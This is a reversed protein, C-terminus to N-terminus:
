CWDIKNELLENIKSFPKSGSFSPFSKYPRKNSLPSPHSSVLLHNNKIDVMKKHAFAGWAVFVVDTCKEDISKIIYETFKAWMKMCSAASGQRVSLSANLLLVGQKAWKELTTDTLEINLDALLEKKINRLSPPIKIDSNVGFCLGIAQGERHYPDQGLLVVKTDHINFYNFCRFIQHIPPYSSLIDAFTDIEKKYLKDIEDINYDLILQKWDTTINNARLKLM